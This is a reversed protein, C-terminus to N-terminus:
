ISVTAPTSPPSVVTVVPAPSAVAPLSVPSTDGVENRYACKGAIWTEAVSRDDGIAMVGFLLEAAEDVTAPTDATTTLSQHWSL